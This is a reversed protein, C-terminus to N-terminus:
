PFFAAVRECTWAVALAGTAFALTRRVRDRLTPSGRAVRALLLLAGVVAVQGLEVGLNFSFLAVLEHGAPLGLERLSSAFGLGHVLGFGLAWPWAVRRLPKDRFAEAAAVAISAAICAEVWASAVPITWLSSAVLTLAHGATFATVTRLHDRLRGGLLLLALVFMLHDLGGLIHRVGLDTYRRAAALSDTATAAPQLALSPQDPGLRARQIAGDAFHIEVFVDVPNAQVGVLHLSGRLGEPCSWRSQSTASCEAPPRVALADTVPGSASMAPPVFRVAVETDTQQHVVLVGARFEHAMVSGPLLVLLALALVGMVIRLAWRGRGGNM